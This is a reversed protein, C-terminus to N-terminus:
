KNEGCLRQARLPSTKNKQKGSLPRFAFILLRKPGLSAATFLAGEDTTLNDSLSSNKEKATRGTRREKQRILPLPFIINKRQSRQTKLSAPPSIFVNIYGVYGCLEAQVM